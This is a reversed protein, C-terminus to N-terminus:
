GAYLTWDDDVVIGVGERQSHSFYGQYRANRYDILAHGKVHQEFHDAM